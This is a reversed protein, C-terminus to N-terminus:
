PNEIRNQLFIWWEMCMRLIFPLIEHISQFDFMMKPIYDFNPYILCPHYIYFFREWNDWNWDAVSSNWLRVTFDGLFHWKTCKHCSTLPQIQMYHKVPCIYTGYLSMTIRNFSKWQSSQTIFIIFLKGFNQISIKSEFNFYTLNTLIENHNSLNM